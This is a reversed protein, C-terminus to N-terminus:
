LISCLKLPFLQLWRRTSPKQRSLISFTPKRRGSGQFWMVCSRARRRLSHTGQRVFAAEWTLFFVIFIFRICFSIFSFTSFAWDTVQLKKCIANFFSLLLNQSPFLWIWSIEHLLWSEWSTLSAGSAHATGPHRSGLPSSVIRLLQAVVPWLMDYCTMVHWADPLVHTNAFIVWSPTLVQCFHYFIWSASM